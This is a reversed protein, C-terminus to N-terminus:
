GSKANSVDGAFISSGIQLIFSISKRPQLRGIKAPRTLVGANFMKLIPWVHGVPHAFKACPCGALVCLHPAQRVGQECRPGMFPPTQTDPTSELYKTIDPLSKSILTDLTPSIIRLTLTSWFKNQNSHWHRTSFVCSSKASTVKAFLRGQSECM